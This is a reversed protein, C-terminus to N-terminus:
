DNENNPFLDEATVGLLESLIRKEEPKPEFLGTSLRSLRSENIGAILAVRYMPEGHDVLALKLKTAMQNMGGYVFQMLINKSEYELIVFPTGHCM